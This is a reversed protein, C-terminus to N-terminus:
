RGGRFVLKSRVQHITYSPQLMAAAIITPVLQCYRHQAYQSGAAKYLVKAMDKREANVRVYWPLTQRFGLFENWSLESRGSRRRVMCEKVWRVQQRILRARAVSVSGPHIRYKLLYEPQVLIKYGQELLRNWLDVDEAAFQPRYCGVSLVASKRLMAAPHCIGVLENDAYRKQVAENTVLPSRGHAIVRGNPDIHKVWSSAVALEPHEAVFTMQRELRNPMMLDDADMRAVWENTALLLGQNLTRAVGMNEHSEVRIRADRQAYSQSIDLTSDQSGDNLIILEFDSWTQALVSEIAEALYREANYAPMIVSIQM